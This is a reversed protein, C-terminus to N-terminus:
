RAYSYRLSRIKETIEKLEETLQAYERVNYLENGLRTEPLLEYDDEDEIDFEIESIRENISRREEELEEIQQLMDVNIATTDSKAINYEPGMKSIAWTEYIERESLDEVKYLVIRQVQKYFLEANGNGLLHSLIRSRFCKTIGVYLLRDQDGYIMYVGPVKKLYDASRFEEVTLELFVEPLTINIM